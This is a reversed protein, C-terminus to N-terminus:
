TSLELLNLHNSKTTLVHSILVVDLWRGILARDSTGSIDKEVVKIITFGIM